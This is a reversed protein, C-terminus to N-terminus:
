DWKLDISAFLEYCNYMNKRFRIQLIMRDVLLNSNGFFHMLQELM